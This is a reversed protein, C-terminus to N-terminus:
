TISNNHAAFSSSLAEGTTSTTTRLLLAALFHKEQVQHTTPHCLQMGATPIYANYRPRLLFDNSLGYYDHRTNRIAMSPMRMNCIGNYEFRNIVSYPVWVRPLWLWPSRSGFSIFAGVQAVLAWDLHQDHLQSRKRTTMCNACLLRAVYAFAELARTEIRGVGSRGVIQRRDQEQRQEQDPTQEHEQEHEQRIASANGIPQMEFCGVLYWFLVFGRSGLLMMFGFHRESKLIHWTALQQWGSAIGSRLLPKIQTSSAREGWRATHGSHRSADGAGAIHWEENSLSAAHSGPFAHCTLTSQKVLGAM